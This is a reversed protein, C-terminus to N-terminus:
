HHVNPASIKQVMIGTMKADRHALDAQSIIGCLHGEHDIVPLRRIQYGAMTSLADQLNDEEYCAVINRTMIENLCTQRSDKGDAVITIALDRDTVIGILRKSEDVIPIPGVDEERMLQAAKSASDGPM